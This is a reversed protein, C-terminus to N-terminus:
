KEKFQTREYEQVMVIDRTFLSDVMPGLFPLGVLFKYKYELHYNAISADIGAAPILNGEGDKKPARFGGTKGEFGKILDDISDAYNVKVDISINEPVFLAMNHGERLQHQKILEKKLLKAYDGDPAPQSRTLRIGESITLDWYASLLAIRGFEFILFVVTFFFGITLTFEVSSVGKKNTFFNYLKQPLQGM